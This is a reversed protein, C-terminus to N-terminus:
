HFFAEGGTACYLWVKGILIKEEAVFRSNKPPYVAIRGGSLGKGVYDNADGELTMTVGKALFAGFSQGASGEFRIRITDDPLGESGYRRAIQGSLMAGVTRHVNRIPFSMEVPTRNEIADKAGAILQHDLAADLGDDQAQVCHRAVRGPLPPNYLIGSLVVGKGKWYDVAPQADVMDVRGVM